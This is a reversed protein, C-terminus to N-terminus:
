WDPVAGNIGMWDNGDPQRHRRWLAWKPTLKAVAASHYCHIHLASDPLWLPNLVTPKSADRALGVSLSRLWAALFCLHPLIAKILLVLYLQASCHPLQPLRCKTHIFSHISSSPQFVLMEGQRGIWGGGHPDRYTKPRGDQPGLAGRWPCLSLYWWNGLGSRAVMHGTATYSLLRNVKCCWGQMHQLGFLTSPTCITHTESRTHTIHMHKALTVPHGLHWLTLISNCSLTIGTHSTHTQISTYM